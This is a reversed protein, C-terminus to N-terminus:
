LIQYLGGIKRLDTDSIGHKKLPETIDKAIDPVYSKIVTCNGTIAYDGM